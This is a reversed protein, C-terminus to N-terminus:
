KPSSNLLWAAEAVEDRCETINSKLSVESPLPLPPFSGIASPDNVQESRRGLFFSFPVYIKPLKWHTETDVTLAPLNDHELVDMSTRYNRANQDSASRISTLYVMELPDRPADDSLLENALALQVRPLLM